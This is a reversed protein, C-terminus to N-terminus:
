ELTLVDDWLSMEQLQQSHTIIYLPIDHMTFYDELMMTVQHITARDINNITEDLFLQESRSM